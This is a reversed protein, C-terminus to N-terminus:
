FRLRGEKESKYQSGMPEEPKHIMPWFDCYRITGKQKLIKLLCTLSKLEQKDKFFTRWSVICSSLLFSLRGFITSNVNALLQSIFAFQYAFRLLMESRETSILWVFQHWIKRWRSMIKRLNCLRSSLWRYQLYIVVHTNLLEFCTSLCKGNTFDM